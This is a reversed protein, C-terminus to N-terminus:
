LSLSASSSRSRCNEGPTVNIGPPVDRFHSFAPRGISRGILNSPQPPNRAAVTGQAQQGSCRARRRSVENAAPIFYGNILRRATYGPISKGLDLYERVSPSLFGPPVVPAENTPNNREDVDEYYYDENDRNDETDPDIPRARKSVKGSGTNRIGEVLLLLFVVYGLSSCLNDHVRM